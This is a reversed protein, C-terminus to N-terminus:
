VSPVSPGTPVKLDPVALTESSPTPGSYVKLFDAVLHRFGSAIKAVYPYEKEFLKDYIPYLKNDSYPDFNEVRHLAAMIDKEFHEYVLGKSWWAHIAMNFPESLSQKYEHSQLLRSVVTPILKRICDFKEIESRSLQTVLKEKEIAGEASIREAYVLASDKKALEAELERIRLAQDRNIRSLENKMSGPALSFWARELGIPNTLANSEEQAALPALHVM